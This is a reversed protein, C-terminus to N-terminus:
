AKAYDIAGTVILYIGCAIVGIMWFTLGATPTLQAFSSGEIPLLKGVIATVVMVCGGALKMNFM